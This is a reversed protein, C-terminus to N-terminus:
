KTLITRKPLSSQRVILETPLIITDVEKTGNQIHKLLLNVSADAMAEIPQAVTTIPTACLRFAEPDDFSAVAIDDPINVKLQILYELGILGVQNNVFFIADTKQPLALLEDIAISVEKKVNGFNVRKILDTDVEYGANLLAQDYGRRREKIHELDSQFSIIGIRKYQMEILHEIAMYAGRANDIRVANATIDPFYRDILVFPIKQQLLKKIQPECRLGSSIILGDVQKDLLVQIMEEFKKHDEDFSCFIVHYNFKASADEIKRGLQSFFNNSIDAVILGITHSIGTRLGRAMQNPKYNLEKAAVLVKKHMEESIRAEKWRGNLVLSVLTKSVGVKQAVDNLSVKKKM